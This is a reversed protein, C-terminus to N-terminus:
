AIGAVESFIAVLIALFKKMTEEQKLVGVVLGITDAGDM